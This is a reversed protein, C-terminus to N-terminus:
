RERERERLQTTTHLQAYYILLVPIIKQGTKDQRATESIM